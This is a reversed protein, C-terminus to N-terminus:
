CITSAPLCHPHDNRGIRFMRNGGRQFEYPVMLVETRWGKEALYNMLPDVHPSPRLDLSLLPFVRVESAVRLLEEIAERHFDFSLQDSYLFLLHSCLALDFQADGFLLRPLSTAVYRGEAKGKEFDELFLRMAATRVRGLHNPDHFYNWVFEDQITRVQAIVTEHSHEARQRISDASFAYIPDCSIIRHGRSNAEANFSAPGDGCGLIRGALDRESLDFMLRYEDFSRGWPIIESPKM